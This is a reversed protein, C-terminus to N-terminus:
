QSDAVGYKRLIAQIKPDTLGHAPGYAEFRDGQMRLLGGGNTGIWLTGGPDALLATVSSAAFAPTSRRDFLTFQAGDFRALGEQTGVWLYGDPTQAIAQVTNQPLGQGAEWGDLTAQALPRDAHDAPAPLPALLVLALVAPFAAGPARGRKAGPRRGSSGTTGPVM